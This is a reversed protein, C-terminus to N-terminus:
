WAQTKRFQCNVTGATSRGRQSQQGRSILSVFKRVTCTRVRRFQVVMKAGQRTTDFIKPLVAICTVTRPGLAISVITENSETATEVEAYRYLDIVHQDNATPITMLNGRVPENGSNYITYVTKGDAPFRNVYVMPIHSRIMPESDLSGFADAHDKLMQREHERYCWERNFAGTANFLRWAPHKESIQYDFVKHRPFYFRYINIGVFGEWHAAVHSTFPAETLDYLLSGDLYQGLVDFGVSETLLVSDPNAANMAQRVQRAADSQAQLENYHRQRAFTHKHHPNSCIRAAGGMEDIRVGDAGTEEILRACTRALYARWPQHDMCMQWDSYPWFYNGDPYMTAWQPGHKRGMVSGFAAEAKNIYLTPRYGKKKLATIYKRFAPLGGWRENYGTLGYDGQNGWLVNKGELMGHRDPWLKFPVGYKAATAKHEALMRETIEEHEWYGSHELGDVIKTMFDDAVHGMRRHGWKTPDTNYAQKAGPGRFGWEPGTSDYNFADTLKNPYKNKHSFTEFWRRYSRMAEHWDGNMVGLTASAFRWQEDPEMDRGFYSFAMTTGLVEDFPEWLIFEFPARGNRADTLLPDIRFTPDSERTDAKLMHLIKYEGSQDNARLFLGGGKEPCYSAMTQFYTRGGGYGSRMRAPHDLVIGTAFPFLYRDNRFGDSWGIGGLVPFAAKVIQNQESRNQISLGLQLEASRDMTVRFRGTLKAADSSIDYVVSISEADALLVQKRDVVFDSGSLRKGDVEIVFINEKMPERIASANMAHHHLRSLRIGKDHQIEVSMAGNVFTDASDGQNLRPSLRPPTSLPRIKPCMDIRPLAPFDEHSFTLKSPDAEDTLLVLRIMFEGAFGDRNLPRTKWVAGGDTSRASCGQDEFMDIGVILRDDNDESRASPHLIIENPGRVLREKPIDFDFWNIAQRTDFWGWGTSVLGKTPVTM